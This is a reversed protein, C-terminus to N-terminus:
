PKFTKKPALFSMNVKLKKPNNKHNSSVIKPEHAAYVEVEIKRGAGSNGYGEQAETTRHGLARAIEKKDFDSAKLDAGFQHRFSYASVGEFGLNSAKRTISKTISEANATYTCPKKNSLLSAIPHNLPLIIERWDQGREQGAKKSVKAGMVIFHIGDKSTSVKVGRALEAPRCGCCALVRVADAHKHKSMADCLAEGWNSPLAKISAKKSNRNQKVGSWEGAEYLAINAEAQAEIAKVQRYLRLVAKDDTESVIAHALVFRSAAREKLRTRSNSATGALRGNRTLNDHMLRYDSQTKPLLNAKARKTAWARAERVENVENM